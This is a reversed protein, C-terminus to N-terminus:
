VTYIAVVTNRAGPLAGRIYLENQETDIKEIEINGVTVQDYGMRGAMRMGKFVKQPGTSGISGPMRVQDKTGHTAPQGKFGHRKVVGQFGKGKSRGTVKIADGVVFQALEVKDGVKYEDVNDFRFEKYGAFNGLDKVHGKQPKPINKAKREGYAVQVATYGDKEKTKIQTITCPAAKVITVPVATGDERYIQTMQVKKGVIFKM